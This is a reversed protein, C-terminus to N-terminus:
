VIEIVKVPEHRKYYDDFYADLTNMTTTTFNNVADSGALISV